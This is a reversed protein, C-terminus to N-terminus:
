KFSKRLKLLKAKMGIPIFFSILPKVLYVFQWAPFGYRYIGRARVRLTNLEQLKQKRGYYNEFYFRYRMLYEPINAVGHNDMVKLFFDYEQSFKFETRYFGVEGVLSRRYMVSPSVFQTKKLIYKKIRQHETELIRKGVVKGKEDIITAWTGVLAIEPNEDLFAVQKEFRKQESIDDHDMRAVYEGKAARLAKNLSPYMGLNRLNPIIRVRKDKKAFTKLINVTNDTSADDVIIFEFDKFSQRLVSQVCEELYNEGNYVPMVVSVKPRRAM